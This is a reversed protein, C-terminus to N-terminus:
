DAVVWFTYSVFGVPLNALNERSGDLEYILFRSFPSRTCSSGGPRGRPSHWQRPQSREHVSKQVMRGLERREAPRPPLEHM